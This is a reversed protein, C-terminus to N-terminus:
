RGLVTTVAGTAPDFRRVRGFTQETFYVLGAPDVAVSNPGLGTVLTTVSGDPAVRAIRNTGFDAVLLAGDRATAVDVPSQFGSATTTIVGTVPDIRRLRQNFTDCVYLAGDAGIALGHPRNLRAATAPGGDGGFGEGGTGAYVTSAGTSGDLRRIWGGLLSVYLNGAADYVLATPQALEAVTRAAGAM